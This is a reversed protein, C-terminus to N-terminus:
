KMIYYFGVKQIVYLNIFGFFGRVYMVKVILVMFIFLKIKFVLGKDVSFQVNVIMMGQFYGIYYVLIVNIVNFVYNIVVFFDYEVM